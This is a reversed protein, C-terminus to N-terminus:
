QNKKAQAPTVTSAFVNVEIELTESVKAGIVAMGEPGTINYDSLKVSFKARVALLNGPLRTRTKESEPLYSVRASMEVPSTVGHLTLEGSVQLNFTRSSDTKKVLEAKTINNLKLKIDPHSEANLWGASRMHEDRLPIGTSLSSVEVTFEAFGNEKPNDPNFTVYGTLQNTTGVIDELPAESKFTITNRNAPDEVIFKQEGDAALVPVSIIFLLLVSMVRIFINM